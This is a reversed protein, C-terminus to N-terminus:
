YSYYVGLGINKIVPLLEVGDETSWNTMSKQINGDLLLGWHNNIKYHIKISGLGQIGWRNNIFPTESGNFDLIDGQYLNRGKNYAYINVATGISIETSWNKNISWVKGISLPIQYVQYRNFHRIRRNASVNVDVDGKIRTQQGTIANTKVSIITDSLRITKYNDIFTSYNLETELNQYRIGAGFVFNNKFRRTYSLQTHYSLITKEYADREPANKSYNLDWSTIGGTISIYNNPIKNMKQETITPHILNDYLNEELSKIENVKILSIATLLNVSEVLLTENQYSSNSTLNVGNEIENEFSSKTIIKDINAQNEEMPNNIGIENSKDNLDIIDTTKPISNYDSEAIKQNTRQINNKFDTESIDTNNIEFNQNTKTQNQTDNTLTKPKENEITALSADSSQFTNPKSKSNETKELEKSIQINDNNWIYSWDIGLLFLVCGLITFIFIFVPRRSEEKKMKELIGDEMDEWKLDDSLESTDDSFMDRWKDLNNDANM